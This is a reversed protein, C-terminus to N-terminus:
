RTVNTTNSLMVHGANQFIGSPISPSAPLTLSPLSPFSTIVLVLYSFLLAQLIVKMTVALFYLPKGRVVFLLSLFAALPITQLLGLNLVVPM